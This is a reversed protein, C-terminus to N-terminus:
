FGFTNPVSQYPLARVLSIDSAFQVKYAPQSPYSLYDRRLNNPSMTVFQNSLKPLSSFDRSQAYASFAMDLSPPLSFMGRVCNERTKLYAYRTQWGFLDNDVNDDGTTFIERNLLPQYGLDALEPWYIDEPVKDFWLHEIKSNYTVEPTIIMVGMIYGYDDSHFRGVFGSSNVSGLGTSTGLPSSDTSASTQLIQAFSIVDSTGGIYYPEYEPVRPSTGFHAEITSNYNGNTLANREAWVSLAIMNRLTNATISLNAKASASGGNVFLHNNDSLWSTGYSTLHVTVDSNQWNSDGGATMLYYNGSSGSYNPILEVSDAPATNSFRVTGIDTGPSGGDNFVTKADLNFDHLNLSVDKLTEESGRVLWPKASTFIDNDYLAYRMQSLNVCNDDVTPIFNAVKNDPITMGEPVFYFGQVNGAQADAGAYGIRWEDALDDPFWVKNDQLLNSPLYNRCIKQYFMFPLLNVSSPLKKGTKFYDQSDRGDTLAYPLYNDKGSGQFVTSPLGLFSPLGMPNFPSYKKGGTLSTDDYFFPGAYGNDNLQVHPINLILSGSRGKTVFTQWGKWLADRKIFYWHTRIKYNTLPSVALPLTELLYRVNITIDDKPLVEFLDIPMIAGNDATFLSKRSFDFSSRSVDKSNKVDFISNSSGYKESLLTQPM